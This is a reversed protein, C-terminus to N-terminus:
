CRTRDAATIVADNRPEGLISPLDLLGVEDQPYLRVRDGFSDALEATFAMSSATRGGYHLAWDAQRTQASQIMALIPTIGIGGAIFNYRQASILEFNNRPESVTVTSGKSVEDHIYVSGGRGNEERLIAIRWRTRDNQDGCLSYQRVFADGVIVDIHAGPIWEPLLSGDPSEIELAIVGDAVTYRGAVNVEFTSSAVSQGISVPRETTM